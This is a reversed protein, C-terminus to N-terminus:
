QIEGNEMRQMIEAVVAEHQANALDDRDPEEVMWQSDFTIERTVDADWYKVGNFREASTHFVMTEYYRGCGIPVPDDNEVGGPYYNGVTSVVVRTGNHELLTNRRFACYRACIYHGAWGRETRQM